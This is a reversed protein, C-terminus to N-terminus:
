GREGIAYPVEYGQRVYYPMGQSWADTLILRAQATTKLMDTAKMVVDKPTSGSRVVFLLIEALGTLANIDALPLIPPADLLIYRFRPKLANIVSALQPFKSLPVPFEKINGVTLIWLPGDSVQHMCAELPEEGHFYEALGPESAISMLEHVAPRKFDCDIVLTPENLDNALTYALNAVTSTKGEGKMSSTVLVVTSEQSSHMLNLRTAAVRFQEAVISGPRWKAVLGLEQPFGNKSHNGSKGNTTKAPFGQPLYQPSLSREDLHGSSFDSSAHSLSKFSKGYAIQFSPITALIPLGISVEADESRRFTPKWQELAFASGYGLGCGVAFGALVILYRPPGEPITPLNAPDLIRFREAKQRKELNESIRSSLQKEHLRQYNERMNAYDRQLVLLEQEYQPTVEINKQYKAMDVNINKARSKLTQIQMKLEAQTNILDQLYPDFKQAAEGLGDTLFDDALSDETGLSLTGREEIEAELRKIHNKLSIVDPYSETYEVLMKALDEKMAGLRHALPDVPESTGQIPNFSSMDAMTGAMAEYDRISKKTLEVRTSLNNLSEQISEKEAQLRDLSRLNTTLQGPLQGVHQLKFESLLKEKEDLEKRAIELEQNLFESAGEVFQERIKLNQDIYQSAIKSTVKMATMPDGHAYSITFSELRGRSGKTELTVNKALAAIVADYGDKKIIEPYLNLEEIVKQLSTRSLVRQTITSVREAVGDAVMPRVINGPIKQHEVLITTSSRYLEPQNWAFIGSAVTCLFVIGMILWKRRIAIDLLEELYAQIMLNDGGSASSSNTINGSEM